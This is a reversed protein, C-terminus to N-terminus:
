VVEECMECGGVCHEDHIEWELNLITEMMQEILRLVKEDEEDCLKDVISDVEKLTYFHHTHPTEPGRKNIATLIVSNETM